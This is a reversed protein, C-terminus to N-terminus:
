RYRGQFNYFLQASIIALDQGATNNELRMSFHKINRCQPERREVHAYRPVGLYRYSLNRPSLKWSYSRIPSLDYRQEYDTDYRINVETDTSSRVVFLVSRVDKLSDYSGMNQTPFQYVKEIPEGYDSFYKQGMETLRGDVNLHYIKSEEKAFAIAKINTYFFWHPDKRTSKEYDWAYVNGDVVLWYRSNDDFSCVRDPVAMLVEYLLGPGNPGGNVKRSIPVINQEYAASSDLVMHVGQRSNCFVLNNVVLQVTWPLDCGIEANIPTYPMELLLRQSDTTTTNVVARGISHKKFIVLMNQQRGFATIEDEADGALNYQEAPFYGADMISHNGNWFYANPQAPCGGLVVCINRDGGYAAAYCCDMVSNYMDANEKTYSLKVTNAAFPTSVPPAEEFSVTGAELDVTYDTGEAKEVGDVSVNSVSDVNQEPLHYVRVGEEANYWLTKTPSLRNEPQNATGAHTTPNMSIYTVPVYAEVDAATFEGDNYSIQVYGGRNKYYLHEGYRFFTGRSERLGAYLKEYEPADPDISYIGDGIHAFIRGWFLREYCSYGEGPANETLWVQGPRCGLAGDKWLLNKMEPSENPKLRYNLDYINLGGDLTSFEVVSERKPLPGDYLPIQFSRGVWGNKAM